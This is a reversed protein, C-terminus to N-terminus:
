DLGVMIFSGWYIPDKYEELIAKKAKIFASRKNNTKIWEEYFLTVLKQTVADDVKFLTMVVNQAGAVIFSRQLGYVGEGSKVEGRGTECASLFVIETHDLNLNMAEFATLVGDQQNFKYINETSLLDSAGTFLLGSRMLPNSVPKSETGIIDENQYNQQEDAMFFGHTAIHLVRPSEVNKLETESADKGIFKQTTWNKDLLFTNLETVEKEAGPLPEISTISNSSSSDNGFLPNGILVATTNTYVTAGGRSQHVLDKTNSVFYFTYTNILYNQDHDIFTEPNIQNYVGDGSFYIRKKGYLKSDFYEWYQAYSKRDESKEKIANQYYSFYKGELENGNSLIVMQPQDRTSKTVFLGVYIVSDTFETDFYNFRIIEMAADSDALTNKVSVWNVSKNEYNQSFGQASESLEKEILNIDNQLQTININNSDLSEQNMGIAKILLDKQSLWNRYKEILEPSGYTMIREKLKISSNLLLAKTALRNNYMDSIISPDEKHFMVALSNFIEFDARISAWYKTKESESLSPFYSNIYTLYMKTSTRLTEAAKRYNKQAYFTQGIKSLTSVYKPHQTSFIKKYISLAKNYFTHANVYNGKKYYLLAINVQNDATKFHHDGYTSTYILNAAQLQILAEDYNQEKLYVLAKLETVEAVKPHHDNVNTSIIQNARNLNAMLQAMEVDMEIQVRTKRILIDSINLYMTGFKEEYATLVEDYIGISREYDGMKYYVQGLLVKRELYRLSNSGYNRKSITVAKTINKEADILRGQVLDIQGLLAYPKILEIHNTGLKDTKLKITAGLIDEAQDYKGVEFYLEALGENMNLPLMENVIDYKKALSYAEELKKKSNVFDGNIAYLEGIAQLTYVYNQTKTKKETKYATLASILNNEASAYDGIDVQARAMRQLVLAYEESQDGYKVKNIEALRKYKAIADAFQDQKTNILAYDNLFKGYYPHYPHLEKLVFVDFYNSYISDAAKFDTTYNLYYSGLELNANYYFSSSDSNNIDAIRVIREYTLKAGTYDYLSIQAKALDYLFPLQGADSQDYFDNLGEAQKSMHKGYAKYKGKSIDELHSLYNATFQHSSKKPYNKLVEREYQKLANSYKSYNELKADARIENEFMDLYLLNPINYKVNTAYKKRVKRLDLGAYPDGKLVQLKTYGYWNKIYSIDKKKVLQSLEQDNKLYISDAVKLDGQGLFIDAKMVMLVGLTSLRNKYDKKKIKVFEEIGKKQNYVKEKKKTLNRQYVITEDIYKKAQNYSMTQLFLQMREIRIYQAWYKYPDSSENVFKQAANYKLEAQEYKSYAFASSAIALNGMLAFSDSPYSQLTDWQSLVSDLKSSNVKRLGLASEYKLYLAQTPLVYQKLEGKKNIKNLLSRAGSSAQFYRGHKYHNELKSFEKDWKQDDQAFAMVPVFMLVFLIRKMMKFTKINNM